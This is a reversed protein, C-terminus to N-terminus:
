IVIISKEVDNLNQFKRTPSVKFYFWCVLRFICLAPKVAMPKAAVKTNNILKEVHWASLLLWSTSARTLPIPALLWLPLVLLMSDSRRVASSDCVIVTIMFVRSGDM